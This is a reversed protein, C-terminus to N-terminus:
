KKPELEHCLKKYLKKIKLIHQKTYKPTCLEYFKFKIDPYRARINFRNIDDLLKIESEELQLSKLSKFLIPLDHTYPAQKNKEKVSHAKLVKEIVIHGFFLSNSFHKSKYLSLMTRYDNEATKLWYKVLKKADKSDM